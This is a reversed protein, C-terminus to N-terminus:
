LAIAYVYHEDEYAAARCRLRMAREAEMQRPMEVGPAYCRTSAVNGMCGSKTRWALKTWGSIATRFDGPNGRAVQRM